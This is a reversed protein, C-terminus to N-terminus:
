RLGSKKLNELMKSADGPSLASGYVKASEYDPIGDVYPLEWHKSGDPYFSVEFVRLGDKFVTETKIESHYKEVVTNHVKGEKTYFEEPGGGPEGRKRQTKSWM